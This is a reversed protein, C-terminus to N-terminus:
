VGFCGYCISLTLVAQNNITWLRKKLVKFYALPFYFVTEVPIYIFTAAASM